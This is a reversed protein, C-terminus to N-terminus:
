TDAVVGTNVGAHCCGRWSSRPTSASTPPRGRRRAPRSRVPPRRGRPGARAAGAPRRRRPRTRSTPRAARAGRSRRTRWRRGPGACARRGSARRRGAPPRPRRTGRRACRRRGSRSAACSRGRTRRRRTGSRRSRRRAGGRARGRRGAGRRRSAQVLVQARLGPEDREVRDEALLLDLAPDAAQAPAGGRGDRGDRRGAQALLDLPQPRGLGGAFPRQQAGVVRDRDDGARQARDVVRVEVQQALELRARDVVVERRQLVVLLRQAALERVAREM